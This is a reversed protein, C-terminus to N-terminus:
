SGEGKDVENGQLSRLRDRVEAAKEFEENEIYRQMDKKLDEIERQAQLHSGVRKPIKGAHVTNGSHVRKLIPDLREGFAQYCKSCGFRGLKTFKEYTMQCNPCHLSKKKMQRSTQQNSFFDEGNLLGSLLEHISYSNSGPVHDGKEKACYDCLHTETKKGNVIKTFHLTASNKQCEQCLM